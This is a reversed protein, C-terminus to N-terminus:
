IRKIEAILIPKKCIVSGDGKGSDLLVTGKGATLLKPMDEAPMDQLEKIIEDKYKTQTQM